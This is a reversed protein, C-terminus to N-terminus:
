GGALEDSDSGEGGAFAVVFRSGKCADGSGGEAAPELEGMEAGGKVLFEAMGGVLVVEAGSMGGVAGEVDEGLDDFGISVEGGFNFGGADDEL